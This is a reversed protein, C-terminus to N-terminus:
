SQTSAPTPTPTSTALTSLLTTSMWFPIDQNSQLSLVLSGGAAGAGALPRQVPLNSSKQLVVVITSRPDELNEALHKLLLIWVVSVYNAILTIGLVVSSSADRVSRLPSEVLNHTAGALFMFLFPSLYAAHEAQWAGTEWTAWRLVTIRLCITYSLRGIYSPTHSALVRALWPPSDVEQSGPQM